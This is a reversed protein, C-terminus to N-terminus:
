SEFLPADALPDAVLASSSPERAEAISGSAQAAQRQKDVEYLAIAAAVSANLSDVLRPRVLAALRSCCRKVAPQLGDGENGLVIVTPGRLDISSLLETAGASLGIVQAGADLAARLGDKLSPVRCLTAHEIAGASARFTAPTLPASAHEGWLLAAGGTAVASRVVAGFNQPDQVRDLAMAILDPRALVDSWSSLVLEPALAIAGQHQGGQARRDMEGRPLRVVRAVGRDLAFRELAALKPSDGATLAVEILARGHVRLCERVPQLGLVLRGEGHQSV